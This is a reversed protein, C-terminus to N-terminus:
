RRRASRSCTPSAASSRGQEEIFSGPGASCAENMAADVVKADALRIYKADQGGIEFITDVREDYHLAGEAHAAIENLVFVREVGYCTSLLSGVIERGSGTAGVAVLAHRSAPGDVFHRMLQRAAGVPDGNTNTYGEWVTERSSADIAVAKSGTSGIDFGLVLERVASGLEPL